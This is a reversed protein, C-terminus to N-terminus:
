AKGAGTVVIAKVAADDLAKDLGDTIGKRTDLGLGNVPPNDLTIVAVNGRVEYNASMPSRTLHLSHFDFSRAIKPLALPFPNDRRRCPSVPQHASGRTM